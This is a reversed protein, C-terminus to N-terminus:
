LLPPPPTSSNSPTNNSQLILLPILHLLPLRTRPQGCEKVLLVIHLLEVPAQGGIDCVELYFMLFFSQQQAIALVTRYGPYRCITPVFSRQLSIFRTNM